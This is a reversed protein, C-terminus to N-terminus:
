ADTTAKPPVRYIDAHIGPATSHDPSYDHYKRYYSRYSTALSLHPPVQDFEFRLSPFRAENIPM